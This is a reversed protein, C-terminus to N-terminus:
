FSFIGASTPPPVPAPSPAPPAVAQQAARRRRAAAERAARRRSAAIARAILEHLPVEAKVARVQGVALGPPQATRPTVSRAKAAIAAADAAVGLSHRSGNGAPATAVLAALAGAVM